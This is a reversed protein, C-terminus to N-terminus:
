EKQVMLLDLSKQLASAVRDVDIVSELAGADKEGIMDSQKKLIELHEQAQDSRGKLDSNSKKLSDVEKKLSEIESLYTLKSENGQQIDVSIKQLNEEIISTVQALKEVSQTTFTDVRTKHEERNQEINKNLNTIAQDLDALKQQNETKEEESMSDYMYKKLCTIGKIMNEQKMKMFENEEQYFKESGELENVRVDFLQKQANLQNLLDNKLNQLKNNEQNLINIKSVQDEVNLFKEQNLNKETALEFRLDEIIKLLDKNEEIIKKFKFADFATNNGGDQMLQLM